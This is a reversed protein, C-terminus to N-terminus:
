RTPEQETAETVPALLRACRRCEPLREVADYESQRGTGWWLESSPAFWAPSTGCLSVPQHGAYGGGTRLAHKTKGKPLYRWTVAARPTASMGSRWGDATTEWSEVCGEHLGRERGLREVESRLQTVEDLLQGMVPRYDRKACRCAALLDYTDHLGCMQLFEATIADLDLPTTM